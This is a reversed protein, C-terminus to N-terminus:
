KGEGEKAKRKEHAKIGAERQIYDELTEGEKAEIDYFAQLDKNDIGPAMWGTATYHLKIYNSYASKRDNGANILAQRAMKPNVKSIDATIKAM